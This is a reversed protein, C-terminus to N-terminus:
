RKLHMNMCSGEAKHIYKGTIVNKYFSIYTNDICDSDIRDFILSHLRRINCMPVGHHYHHANHFNNGNTLWFAFGSANIITRTNSLPDLNTQTNLAYHEPTEILFHVAESIFLVPLIWVYILITSKFYFSFAIAVLIAASIILYDGRIEHEERENVADRSRKGTLAYITEQFVTAYRHLSFASILFSFPNNLKLHKYSFFEKNAPQGLDRHHRLHAARYAHYSSLMPLGVLIGLTSNILKNRFVHGHLLEHQLEVCHAYVVGITVISIVTIVSSCNTVILSIATSLILLILLLKYVFVLPRREFIDKPLSARFNKESTNEIDCLEIVDCLEIANQTSM